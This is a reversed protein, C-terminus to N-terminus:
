SGGQWRWQQVQCSTWDAENEACLLHCPGRECGREGWFLGGMGVGHSDVEGEGVTKRQRYM